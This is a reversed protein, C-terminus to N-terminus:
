GLQELANILAIYREIIGIQFAKLRGSFEVRNETDASVLETGLGTLEMYYNDILRAAGSSERVSALATRV